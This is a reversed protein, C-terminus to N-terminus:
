NKDRFIRKIIFNILNKELYRDKLFFMLMGLLMYILTVIGFGSVYSGLKEALYFGLTVSGFLFTLVIAVIVFGNTILSALVVSLREIAALRTLEIRISFYDKLLARIDQEKSKEQNEEM